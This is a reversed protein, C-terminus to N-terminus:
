INPVRVQKVEGGGTPAGDEQHLDVKGREEFQRRM